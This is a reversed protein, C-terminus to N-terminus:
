LDIMKAFDKYKEESLYALAESKVMEAKPHKPEYLAILKQLDTKKQRGHRFFTEVLEHAWKEKKKFAQFFEFPWKYQYLAFHQLPPPFKDPKFKNLRAAWQIHVAEDISTNRYDTCEGIYYSRRFIIYAGSQELIKDALFVWQLSLPSKSFNRHTEILHIIYKKNEIKFLNLVKQAEDVSTKTHDAKETAPRKLDHILGAIYAHEQESKDKGFIHALWKAGIATRKLHEFGHVASLNKTRNFIYKELDQIM